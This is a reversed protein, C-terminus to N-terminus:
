LRDFSNLAKIIKGIDDDEEGNRLLKTPPSQFRRSGMKVRSKEPTISSATKEQEQTTDSNKDNKYAHFAWSNEEPCEIQHQYCLKLFKPYNEFIFGKL